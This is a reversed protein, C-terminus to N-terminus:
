VRHGEGLGPKAPQAGGVGQPAQDPFGAESRGVQDVRHEHGVADVAPLRDLRHGPDVVQRDGVGHGFGPLRLLEPDGGHEQEPERRALVLLSRAGPVVLAHDLQGRPGDLFRM